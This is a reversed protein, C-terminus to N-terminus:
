GIRQHAVDPSVIYGDRSLPAAAIIVSADDFPKVIDERLECRIEKPYPNGHVVPKVVEELPIAELQRIVDMQRNMEFRLTEAEEPDMGIRGTRVLENFIEKSIVEQM